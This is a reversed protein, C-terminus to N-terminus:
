DDTKFQNHASRTSYTNRFWQNEALHVNHQALLESHLSVWSRWDRKLADCKHTSTALKETLSAHREQSSEWDNNLEALQDELDAHQEELERIRKNAKYLPTDQKYKASSM